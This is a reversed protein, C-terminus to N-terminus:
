YEGITPVEALEFFEEVSAPKEVEGSLIKGQLTRCSTWVSDIWNIFLISITYKDSSTNIAYKAFSDPGEFDLGTKSNCKSIEEDILSDVANKITLTELALSAEQIREVDPQYVGDIPEELYYPYRTGDEQLAYEKLIPYGESDFARKYRVLDVKQFYISVREDSQPLREAGGELFTKGTSPTEILDYYRM